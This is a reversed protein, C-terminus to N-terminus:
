NGYAGLLIALDPGGVRGDGNLDAIESDSDWAALLTGLDQGDVVNDGNLDGPLGCENNPCTESENIQLMWGETDHIRPDHNTFSRSMALGNGAQVGSFLHQPNFTFEGQGQCDYAHISGDLNLLLAGSDDTSIGLIQPVQNSASDLLQDTLDTFLVQQGEFRLLNVTQRGEADFGLAIMESRGDRDFDGFVQPYQNSVSHIFRIDYTGVNEFYRDALKMFGERTHVLSTMGTQSDTSLRDYGQLGDMIVRTNEGNIVADADGPLEYLLGNAGLALIGLDKSVAFDVFDPGEDDGTIVPAFTGPEEGTRWLRAHGNAMREVLLIEGMPVQLLREPKFPARGLISPHIRQLEISWANTYITSTAGDWEGWTACGVPQIVIRSDIFRFEDTSGRMLRNMGQVPTFVAAALSSAVRLNSVWPTDWDDAGFNSQTSFVSSDDPDNAWMHRYSGSRESGTFTMCHGGARTIVTSGWLNGVTNYRGYCVTQIADDFIGSQTMERLTVVNFANRYEYGVIYRFGTPWVVRNFMTLFAPLGATGGTGTTGMDDGLDDIFDTVDAYDVENEWDAFAPGVAPEGHSAMYGLLNTCATPVCYMGGPDGSSSAALGNRRQDFDPMQILQYGYDSGSTYYATTVDGVLSGTLIMGLASTLLTKTATTRQM